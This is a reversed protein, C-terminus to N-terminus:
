RNRRRPRREGGSTSSSTSGSGLNSIREAASPGDKPTEQAPAGDKPEEKETKESDSPKDSEKKPESSTEATPGKLRERERKEKEAKLRKEDDVEKLTAFVETVTVIGDNNRDLFRFEDAIAESWPKGNAYETMTLQADQNKDREFFWDPVGAPLRDYFSSQRTAVAAAGTSNSTSGGLIEILEAMSIRGDRNKDAKEPSFPLASVWEGKDKELTGSKNKDYKSMVDRASRLIQDSANTPTAPGSAAKAVTATQTERQGFTLVSPQAPQPEGFYPVLPDKPLSASGPSGSASTSSGSSVKRALENLDITKSPDGGMRTVIREVFNRRYEPIENPELKGNGNTDMSRLMGLSRENRSADDGGPAGSGMPGMPGGGPMWPPRNGDRNQRGGPGGPGGRDAGGRMWPPGGDRNGGQQMWPPPGGPPQAWVTSCGVVLCFLLIRKM